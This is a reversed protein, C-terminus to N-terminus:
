IQDSLRLIYSFTPNTSNPSFYLKVLPVVQITTLFHFDLFKPFKCTGGPPHHSEVRANPVKGLHTRTVCPLVNRMDPRQPTFNQFFNSEHFKLQFLTEVAYLSNGEINRLFIVKKKFILFKRRSISQHGEVCQFDIRCM